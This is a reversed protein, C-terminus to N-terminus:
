LQAALHQLGASVFHRRIQSPVYVFIYFIFICFTFFVTVAIGHTLVRHPPKHQSMM